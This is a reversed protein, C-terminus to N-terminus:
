DKAAWITEDVFKVRYVRVTATTGTGGHTNVSKWSAIIEDDRIFQPFGAHLIMKGEAAFPGSNTRRLGDVREGFANFLIWDLQYAVIPKEGVHRIRAQTMWYFDGSALGCGLFMRGSDYCSRAWIIKLPSDPQEIIKVTHESVAAVSQVSVLMLAVVFVLLRLM